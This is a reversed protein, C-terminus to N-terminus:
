RGSPYRELMEERTLPFKDIANTIERVHWPLPKRIKVQGDKDLLILGFGRPRFRERLGSHAAPDADAIVVVDYEALQGEDAEIMEIQRRFNPDNPSDAFVLVPRKIWQFEALTVGPADIIIGGRRGEQAMAALPLFLSLVIIYARFM